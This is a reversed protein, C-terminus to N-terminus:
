LNKELYHENTSKLGVATIKKSQNAALDFILSLVKEIFINSEFYFWDEASPGCCCIPCIPSDGNLVDQLLGWPAISDDFKSVIVDSWYEDSSSLYKTFVSAPADAGLVLHYFVKKNLSNLSLTNAKETLFTRSTDILILEKQSLEIANATFFDETMVKFTEVGLSSTAMQLQTWGGIKQDKYSLVAIKEPPVNHKLANSVFKIAASTKGSGAPGAIIHVGSLLETKSSVTKGGSSNLLQTKISLLAENEDKFSYFDGLLLTELSVPLNADHISKILAELSESLDDQSKEVMMKKTLKFEKKMEAVERLVLDVLEKARLSDSEETERASYIQEAKDERIELSKRTSDKFDQSFNLDEVRNIKPEVTKKRQSLSPQFSAFSKRKSGSDSAKRKERTKESNAFDGKLSKAKVRDNNMSKNLIDDFCERALEDSLSIKENKNNQIRNEKESYILPEPTLDAAVIVEVKGNHRESSVVLTNPGYIRIAEETASRLDRAIIRKLEM